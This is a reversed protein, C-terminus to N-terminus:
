EDIGRTVEELAKIDDELQQPRYDIMRALREVFGKQGLYQSLAYALRRANNNKESEKSM